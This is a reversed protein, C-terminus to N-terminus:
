RGGDQAAHAGTGQTAARLARCTQLKHEAEERYPRLTEPSLQVITGTPCYWAGALPLLESPATYTHFGEAGDLPTFTGMASVYCHDRYNFGGRALAGSGTGRIGDPNYVSTTVGTGYAQQECQNRETCQVLSGLLLSLALM